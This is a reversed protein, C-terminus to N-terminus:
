SVVPRPDINRSQVYEHANLGRWPTVM